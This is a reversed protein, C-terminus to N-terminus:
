RDSSSRPSYVSIVRERPDCYVCELRQTLLIKDENSPDRIEVKNKWDHQATGCDQLEECVIRLLEEETDSEAKGGIWSAEYLGSESVIPVDFKLLLHAYREQLILRLGAPTGPDVFEVESRWGTM